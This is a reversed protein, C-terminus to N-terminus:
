QKDFWEDNDMVMYEMETYGQRDVGQGIGVYQGEANFCSYGYRDFGESDYNDFMTKEDYTGHDYPAPMQGYCNFTFVEIGTNPCKPSYKGRSM